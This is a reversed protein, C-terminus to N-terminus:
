KTEVSAPSLTKEGTAKFKGKVMKGKTTFRNISIKARVEVHADVLTADDPEGRNLGGCGQVITEAVEKRKFRVGFLNFSHKPMIDQTFTEEFVSLMKEAEALSCKFRNALSAIVDRKVMMAGEPTTIKFPTFGTEVKEAKKEAKVASNKATAKAPKAQVKAKAKAPAKADKAKAKAKTPAKEEEVVEDATEDIDEGEDETIDEEVAEEKKAVKNRGRLSRAPKAPATEEEVVEDTTEIDEQEVTEAERAALNRNRLSRAGASRRLNSTAM